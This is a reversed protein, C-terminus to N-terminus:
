TAYVAHVYFCSTYFCNNEQNPLHEPPTHLHMCKSHYFGWHSSFCKIKTTVFNLSYKETFSSWASPYANFNKDGTQFITYLSVSKMKITKYLVNRLTFFRNSCNQLLRNLKWPYGLQTDAYLLEKLKYLSQQIIHEQTEVYRVGFLTEQRSKDSGTKLVPWISTLFACCMFPKTSCLCFILLSLFCLFHNQNSFM